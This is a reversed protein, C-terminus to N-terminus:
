VVVKKVFALKSDYAKRITSRVIVFFFVDM